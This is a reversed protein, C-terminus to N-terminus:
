LGMGVNLRSVGRKSPVPKGGALLFTVLSHSAQSSELLGKKLILRKAAEKAWHRDLEVGVFKRGMRRCAEAVWGAGMCPDLVTDGRKTHLAIFFQALEVPKPTPHDGESPIIKRIGQREADIVNPIKDTEDYWKCKEGPKTAVLVVEYNRRYHWGVGMGCKNWIVMQKFSLSQDMWISWNAYEITGPGGGGSCCLAINGGKVLLRKSQDIIFKVLKNASEADDNAIPRAEYNDIDKRERM